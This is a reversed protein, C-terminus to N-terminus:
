AQDEALIGASITASGVMLEGYFLPVPNGQATVNVPGNFNYSAGNEPRDRTSLGKQTPALLQSVGGLILSLGLSGALSGVTTSGFLTTAAWPQYMSVAILAAGLVISFLGGRKAGQIIPAIRIDDGGAPHTLQELSLNQRGAFCAYAVGKDRSTMLEREFGPVMVCLARIAEAANLVALRHVRGFKAGLRGYLRVTRVQESLGQM